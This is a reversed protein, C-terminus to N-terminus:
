RQDARRASVRDGVHHTARARLLAEVALDHDNQLGLWFRPSTGLADALLLAIKATIARKGHVIDDVRIPPVGMLGALTDSSLGLPKMFEELLIEGPTM